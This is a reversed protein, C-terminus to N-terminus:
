SLLFSTLLLMLTSTNNAAYQQSDFSAVSYFWIYLVFSKKKWFLEEYNIKYILKLIVGEGHLM